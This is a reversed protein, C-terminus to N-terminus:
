VGNAVTLERHGIRENGRTDRVLVVVRYRGNPLSRTDLGQALAYRYRGRDHAHNQRTWTAYLSSYAVTPLAYRFDATVHWTSSAVGRSGELRWEVLAPSVPLDAWPEPVDLPTTDWAESVIDVTGSVRSGVGRGDREFSITHITPRTRDAYPGLAGVRLPNVYLGGETESFHVHAWPKEIHGVVTKYAVVRAGPAVAPIVHWYEHATGTGNSVIVVDPHRSNRSAVGDLTAYVATGNPASIDIGFHFSKSENDHGGIRPDGFYGRVPHQQHFPKLPWGYSAHAPAATALTAAASAAALVLKLHTTTFM